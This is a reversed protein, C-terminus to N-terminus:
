QLRATGPNARNPPTLSGPVNGRRTDREHGNARDTGRSALISLGTDLDSVDLHLYREATIKPDSHGAWLQLRALEMGGRALRTLTTHRITHLTVDSLDMGTEDAVDQRLQRFMVSPLNKEFGFFAWTDSGKVRVLHDMLGGLAEVSAPALPVTRPKGSKTRYRPFEVYTMNGRQKINDPGLPVVEGLRAATDFLVQLLARFRFWQRNPEEQRRKELAAWIAAEETDSITRDKLNKVKIQPMAPKAKLLPTGDDDTWKTAMKLATNVMALKRKVTAPKYGKLKKMDSVLQELRTYHVDEVAVAGFPMSPADNSTRSPFQRLVKLNSRITRQSRVNDPHWVTAECKDFLDSMTLRGDRKPAQGSPLASGQPLRIGLVLERGAAKAEAPPTRQPPSKIGTSLRQRRGEDNTFDVMWVGNAKQRFNM